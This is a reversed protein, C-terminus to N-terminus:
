RIGEYRDCTQMKTGGLHWSSKLSNTGKELPLLFKLRTYAQSFGCLLSEAGVGCSM